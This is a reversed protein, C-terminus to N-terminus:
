NATYGASQYIDMAAATYDGGYQAEIDGTHFTGLFTWLRTGNEQPHYEMALVPTGLSGTEKLYLVGNEEVYSFNGLDTYLTDGSQLHLRYDMHYLNIGSNEASTGTPIAKISRIEGSVVFDSDGTIRRITEMQQLVYKKAAFVVQRSDGYMDTYTVPADKLDRNTFTDIVNQHDSPFMDFAGLMASMEGNVTRTLVYSVNLLHRIRCQSDLYAGGALGVISPDAVPFAIDFFYVTYDAGEHHFSDELRFTVIEYGSLPHTGLLSADVREQAKSQLLDLFPAMAAEDVPGDSAQYTNRIAWYTESDEAYFTVSVNDLSRYTIKLINEESSASFSIYEPRLTSNQPKEGLWFSVYWPTVAPPETREIRHEVARHILTILTDAGLRKARSDTLDGVEETQLAALRSLAAPLQEDANLHGLFATSPGDDIPEQTGPIHPALVQARFGSHLPNTLEPANGNTGKPRGSKPLNTVKPWSLWKRSPTPAKASFIITWKM